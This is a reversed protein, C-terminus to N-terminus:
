SGIIAVRGIFVRYAVRPPLLVSNFVRRAV